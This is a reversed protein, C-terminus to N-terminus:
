KEEKAFEEHGDRKAALAKTMIDKADATKDASVATQLKDYIALLDDIQKKYDEMWKAKDAEPVKATNAPTLERAAKAHKEMDAILDLSSAKQAPDDIQKKLAKFDKSMGKMEHALETEHEKAEEARSVNLTIFLACYCSFLLPLPRLTSAPNMFPLAKRM